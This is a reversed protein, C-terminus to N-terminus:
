VCRGSGCDLTARRSRAGGGAADPGSRAAMEGSWMVTSALVPLSSEEAPARCSSSLVARIANRISCSALASSVALGVYESRSANREKVTEKGLYANPNNNNHKNTHEYPTTILHADRAGIIADVHHPLELLFVEPSILAGEM